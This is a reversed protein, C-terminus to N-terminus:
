SGKEGRWDREGSCVIEYWACCGVCLNGCEDGVDPLVEHLFGSEICWFNLGLWDHDM